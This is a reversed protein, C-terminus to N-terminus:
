YGSAYCGSNGSRYRSIAAIKRYDFSVNKSGKIKESLTICKLNFKEITRELYRYFRAIEDISVDFDERVSMSMEIPLVILGELRNGIIMDLAKIGHDFTDVNTSLISYGKNYAYEDIGTIMDLYAQNYINSYLVGITKTNGKVLSKALFNPHYGLEEIIKQLDEDKSSEDLIYGNKTGDVKKIM